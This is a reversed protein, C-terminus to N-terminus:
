LPGHVMVAALVTMSAWVMLQLRSMRAALTVTVRETMLPVMSVASFEVPKENLMESLLTLTPLRSPVPTPATLKVAVRTWTVPPLREMCQQCSQVM